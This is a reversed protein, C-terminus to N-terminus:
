FMWFHTSFMSIECSSVTIKQIPLLLAEWGYKYTVSFPTAPALPTMTHHLKIIVIMDHLTDVGIWHKTLLM